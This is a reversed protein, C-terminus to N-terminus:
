SWRSKCTSVVGKGVRRAASRPGRAFPRSGGVVHQPPAALQPQIEGLRLPPPPPGTKLCDRCPGHQYFSRGQRAAIPLHCRSASVSPCHRLPAAGGGGSRPSGGGWPQAAPLTPEDPRKPRWSPSRFLRTYPLLTDARTSRQPRRLM